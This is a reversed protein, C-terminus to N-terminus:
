NDDMKGNNAVCARFYEREAKEVGKAKSGAIPTPHAKTAMARCKKALDASIARSPDALPLYVVSALAMSAFLKKALNTM